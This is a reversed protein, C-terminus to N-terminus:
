CVSYCTVLARQWQILCKKMNKGKKITAKFERSKQCFIAREASSRMKQIQLNPEWIVKM